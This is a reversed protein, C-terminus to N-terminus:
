TPTVAARLAELQATVEGHHVRIHSVGPRALFQWLPIGDLDAIEEWVAPETHEPKGGRLAKLDVVRNLDDPPLARLWGLSQTRLADLYEGARSRGITRAVWDAKERSLGAGFFTADPKLDRWQPQEAMEDGSAGVCNVAWDITRLCHWVTFGVMNAKPYPRSTWEQDTMGDITGKVVNFSGNLQFELLPKM